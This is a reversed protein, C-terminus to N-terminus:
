TVLYHRKNFDLMRNYRNERTFAKWQNEQKYTSYISERNRIIKRQEMIPLTGHGM